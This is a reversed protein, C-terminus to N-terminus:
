ECLQERCAAIMVILYIRWQEDFFARDEPADGYATVLFRKADDLNNRAVGFLTKYYGDRAMLRDRVSKEDYPKTIDM